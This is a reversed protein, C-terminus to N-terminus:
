LNPLLKKIMWNADSQGRFLPSPTKSSSYSVLSAILAELEKETNIEESYWYRHDIM